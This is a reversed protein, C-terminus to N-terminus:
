DYFNGEVWNWENTIGVQFWAGDKANPNPWIITENAKQMARSTTGFENEFTVGYANFTHIQM